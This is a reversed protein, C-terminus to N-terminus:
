GIGESEIIFKVTTDADAASGSYSGHNKGADAIAKIRQNMVDLDTDFLETLKTIGEDNFKVMGDNLTITGQYLDSAGNKLTVSGEALTKSGDRLAASNATLEGAGSSLTAAGSKLTATGNKLESAGSALDKAGSQVTALGQNLQKAGTDLAAAGSDLAAVGTALTGAGDAVDKAGKALAQLQAAAEPATLQASSTSLSSALASAGAQLPAINAALADKVNNASTVAAAQAAGTAAQDVMAPVAAAVVGAVVQHVAEVQEDSLGAAVLADTPVNSWIAAAATDGTVLGTVSIAQIAADDATTPVSVAGAIQDLGGSIQGAATSAEGVGAAITQMQGVLTNVGDSVQAAGAKLTQAGASANATGAKLDATGNSLTDAGNKLTVAGSSLQGIGNQLATAGNDLKIAGDALESSGDAVKSVGDTYTVIGDYLESSGNALKDTGDFLQSAGDRLKGTGDVLEIGASKFTDMSDRLDDLAGSDESVGDLGLIDTVDASVMTFVMSLEFDTVDAEVVIESPLSMKEELRSLLETDPTKGGNLSDALGPFAMGVVMANNGDSIVNGGTVEINSFRTNDLRMGSVAAYPTYITEERSGVRVRQSENNRYGIVMKLHGSQGALEEPTVARGDLTYSIQVEVPLPKDTTGQYYIDAGNAQWVLKDGDTVYTETGKVNTIDRLTSNDTLEATKDTNKLWDSVIISNVSGDAGTKVYVTEEKRATSAGTQFAQEVVGALDSEEATEAAAPLVEAATQAGCGSLTSICLAASLFCATLKTKKM